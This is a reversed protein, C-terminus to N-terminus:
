APKVTRELVLAGADAHDRSADTHALERASAAIFEESLPIQTQISVALDRLDALQESALFSEYALQRNELMVDPFRRPGQVLKAERAGRDRTWRLGGRPTAEVLTGPDSFASLDRQIENLITATLM